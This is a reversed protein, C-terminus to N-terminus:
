APVEEPVLKCGRAFHANVAGQAMALENQGFRIREVVEDLKHENLHLERGKDLANDHTLTVDGILKDLDRKAMWTQIFLGETADRYAKHTPSNCTM